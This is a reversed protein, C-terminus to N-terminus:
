GGGKKGPNYDGHLPFSPCTYCPTAKISTHDNFGKGNFAVRLANLVPNNWVRDFGDTIINGFTFEQWFGFCCPKCDGNWGVTLVSWLWFCPKLRKPQPQNIKGESDRLISTKTIFRDAELERAINHVTSVQDKNDDFVIFQLEMFPRKSKLDKKAETLMKINKILKNLDGGVRYKGYTEQNSGDISITIYDLGSRIIAEKDDKSFLQFNTSFCTGIQQTHAYEIIKFIDRNVLPEGSGDFRVFVLYEKLDKIIKKFNDIFVKGKPVRNLGLGTPCFPCSLNCINTSELMLTYPKGKLFGKKQARELEVMGINRIKKITLYKSFLSFYKKWIEFREGGFYTTRELQKM